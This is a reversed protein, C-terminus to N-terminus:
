GRPGKCEVDWRIKKNHVFFHNIEEFDHDETAMWYVPVFNQNPFTKELEKALNVTTVIKYLFYLPGTMINLQHGTTITFTNKESLRTINGELKKSIDFGEYQTKVSKQLTKRATDSFSKEKSKRQQEFGKTDPLNEYLEALAPKKEIYDAILKTFFGTESFPIQETHM